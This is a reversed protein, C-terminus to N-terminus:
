EGQSNQNQFNTNSQGSGFTAIAGFSGGRNQQFNTNSNGFGSSGGFGSGFGGGGFGGGFQGNVFMLQTFIIAVVCTIEIFSMILDISKCGKWLRDM